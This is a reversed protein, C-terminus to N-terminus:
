FVKVALMAFVLKSGLHFSNMTPSFAVMFKKMENNNIFKNSDKVSIASKLLMKNECGNYNTVFKTERQIAHMIRRKSKNIMNSANEYDQTKQGTLKVYLNPDSLISISAQTIVESKM